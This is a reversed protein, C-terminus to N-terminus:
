AGAKIIKRAKKATIIRGYMRAALRRSMHKLHVRRKNRDRNFWCFVRYEEQHAEIEQELRFKQDELYKEWWRAPFLGQQAFHIKEHAILWPPLKGGGPNYIIGGYAFINNMSVPLVDNIDTINPPWDVKIEPDTMAGGIAMRQIELGM